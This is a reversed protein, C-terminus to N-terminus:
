DQAAAEEDEPGVPEFEVVSDSSAFIKMLEPMIGEITELVDRTVIQSRGKKENGFPEAFYYRLNNAQQDALESNMWTEASHLERSVIESLVDKDIAM